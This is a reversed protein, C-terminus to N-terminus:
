YAMGATEPHLDKASLALAHFVMFYIPQQVTTM